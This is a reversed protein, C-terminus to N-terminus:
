KNIQSYTRFTKIRGEHANIYYEAIERCNKKDPKGWASTFEKYNPYFGHGNSVTFFLEGKKAKHNFTIKVDYLIFTEFEM